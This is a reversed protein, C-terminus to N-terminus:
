KNNSAKAHIRYGLIVKFIGNDTVPTFGLGYGCNFEWDPSWELDIALFLEHEQNRSAPINNLPGIGGYYEFGAAIVKTINYSAKINPSFTYGENKNLGHFSKDFTPNLSVYFKGMEKDIIPRIELSWDDESYERKQYGAELSLSVGVPWHWKKPAMVRPRIHSGVYNTRMGSGITNFFYFGTEFFDNWGHTIEITEHFVHNTPLVGNEIQKQGDFTYNSHLEVMTAHKAVTESGYVQIEYNDQCFVSLSSFLFIFIFLLNRM